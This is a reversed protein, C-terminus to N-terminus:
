SGGGGSKPGLYIYCCGPSKIFLVTQISAIFRYKIKGWMIIIIIIIEITCKNDDKDM